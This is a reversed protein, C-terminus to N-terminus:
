LVLYESMWCSMVEMWCGMVEMWVRSLILNEFRRLTAAQRLRALASGVRLLRLAGTTETVNMPAAPAWYEM